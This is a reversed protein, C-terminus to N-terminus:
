LKLSMVVADERGRAAPYYNKREGVRVFGYNDYLLLARTNSPRVELWLWHMGQGRAWLCLAHLLTRGWGQGQHEPAVTLNLLHVEDVGRLAVLYGLLEDGALLSLMYQGAAHSDLFNGRTWPHSYARMEIGLWADVLLPSFPEWRAEREPASPLPSIGTNPWVTNM